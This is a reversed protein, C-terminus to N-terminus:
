IKFHYVFLVLDADEVNIPRWNKLGTLSDAHFLGMLSTSTQGMPYFPVGSNPDSYGVLLNEMCVMIM